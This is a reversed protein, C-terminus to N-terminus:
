ILKKLLNTMKYMFRYGGMCSIYYVCKFYLREKRLCLIYPRLFGYRKKFEGSSYIGSRFARKLILVSMSPRFLDLIDSYEILLKELGYYLELDKDLIGASLRKGMSDSNFDLIYHYFAQPVYSIVPNKLLLCINVYLDECYNIGTPYHVDTGYLTRRVLKNCRSGHLRIFLDKIVAHASLSSPEQRVYSQGTSDNTFFDCIVMDAAEEQAKNYLVELMTPEVWDDPDAHIIYEGRAQCLGYERASSVGGNEKHFARVRSDREAYVDCIMGSSDPSGDDILLLEFDTFTQALLSDICRSLCAEVKYVAVIISITM